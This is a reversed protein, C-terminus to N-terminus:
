SGSLFEDKNIFASMPKDFLINRMSSEINLDKEEEDTL